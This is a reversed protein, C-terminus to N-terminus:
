LLSDLLETYSAKPRVGVYRETEKGGTFAIVTPISMVGYKAALEGEDDVNLKCVSVRGDYEASLEEIVPGLFQCPGCWEAWFDVLVPQESNLVVSDFNKSTLVTAM